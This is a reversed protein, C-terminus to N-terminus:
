PRAPELEIPVDIPIIWPVHGERTCTLTLRLPHDAYRRRWYDTDDVWKPRLSAELAFRRTERRALPSAPIARGLEDADNVHPRFRLPGWIVSALDEATPGGAVIPSRNARDDRIAIATGDLRDLGPPGTFTLDLFVNDGVSPRSCTVEFTPTLETHRREREIAALTTAAKESRRAAKWSGSAAVASAIATLLGFVALM